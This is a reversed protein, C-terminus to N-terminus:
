IVSRDVVMADVSSNTSTTPAVTEPLKVNAEKKADADDDVKLKKHPLEVDNRKPAFINGFLTADRKFKEDQLQKLSRSVLKVEKNHPDIDLAKRIDFDASILDHNGMFAQARRYLAKVNSFDLDLVKSCLRIAGHFDNVKLCCAASNLWCSVRLTKVLKKDDAEFFVDEDVYEMAREYNKLARPHKGDEFLDNGKEKLTTAALIREQANLEWPDREKIFDVMEVEYILTSCAPVSALPRKVESAGFGYDPKITLVSTEDKSMTAVARDLGAIVKM